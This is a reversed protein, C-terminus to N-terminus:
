GGVLLARHTPNQDCWAARSAADPLEDAARAVWAHGQERAVAAEAVAGTAHLVEAADLWVAAGDDTWPDVCVALAMAQRAHAAARRGHGSALASRGAIGHAQRALPWLARERLEDVLAEADPLAPLASTATLVRRRCGMVGDEAPWLRAMAALAAERATATAALRWYAFALWGECAPLDRAAMDNRGLACWAVARAAAVEPEGRLDMDALGADLAHLADLAAAPQGAAVATIAQAAWAHLRFSRGYGGAQVAKGCDQAASMAAQADGVLLAGRLQQHTVNVISGHDGFGDALHRAQLLDAEALLPQGLWNLCTGVALHFSLRARPPGAECRRRVADCLAALRRPQPSYPAVATCAFVAAALRDARLSEGEAPLAEALSLAQATAEDIRQTNLLVVVRSAQLELRESLSAATALGRDLARLAATYDSIATWWRAAQLWTTAISDPMGAATPSLSAPLASPVPGALSVPDGELQRREMGLAASEFSRAADALQWRDRAAQGAALHWPVAAVEEGAQQLHWAIRGAAGRQCRLHEAVLQHLPGVLALPLATRAAEAVLDHSFRIGDLLQATELEAFLPALALPPRGLASAALPLTFDDSAVAALQALQLAGSSLQALRQRLSELLTAPVVLPQGPQWSALGQLWLAKVSELVFAPNGGVRAHLARALAHRDLSAAGAVDLPLSDLVTAIEDATWPSLDVRACRTSGDLTRVLSAAAARLEGPRCGFLPLAANDPPQALWGGVVVGIAEMSLDDAFQLDDVGVLRMGKAHCALMTRAVSALVRRHELASQLAQGRAPGGPRLLAIDARTTSDLDPGFREVAAAVLRSVVVGPQLDDGPRAGVMVAPEMAAAAQALLRSKGIGGPGAVVVGHGLAFAREIEALAAERGVLHPPRRLAAPLVAAAVAQRAPTGAAVAQQQGAAEAALVLRGLENTAASPTIGYATRLADRCDDWATIAAARDGRLYFVEMRLRHADEVANDTALVAEAAALAEDLAGADVAQRAMALRRRRRERSAAERRTQLWEAFEPADDFELPGLLRHMAATADAHGEGSAGDPAVIVDDALRLVGATEALVEGAARKLRVLAQRLNARAQAEDGGPWLLGAVRARPSPGELHLWALLGAERASLPLEARGPAALRPIGSLHLTRM